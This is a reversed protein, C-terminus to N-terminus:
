LIIMIIILVFHWFLVKVKLIVWGNIYCSSAKNRIILSVYRCSEYSYSFTPCSANYELYKIMVEVCYFILM